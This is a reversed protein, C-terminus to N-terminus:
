GCDAGDACPGLLTTSMATRAQQTSHQQGQDAGSWEGSTFQMCFLKNQLMQVGGAVVAVNLTSSSGSLTQQVTSPV